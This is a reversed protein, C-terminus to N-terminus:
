WLAKRRRVSFGASWTAANRTPTRQLAAPISSTYTPWRTLSRKEFGENELLRSMGSTESYNLKCGLTHFAITKNRQDTMLACLYMRKASIPLQSNDKDSHIINLLNIILISTTIKSNRAPQPRPGAPTARLSPSAVRDVPVGGAKNKGTMGTAPHVATM